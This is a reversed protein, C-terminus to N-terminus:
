RTILLFGVAASLLAVAVAVVPTWDFGAQGAHPAADTPRFAPAEATRPTPTARSAAVTDAEPDVPLLGHLASGAAAPRKARTVDSGSGSARQGLGSGSLGAGPPLTGLDVIPDSGLPRHSASGPRPVTGSRPGTPLPAPAVVLDRFEPLSKLPFFQGGKSRGVLISSADGLLGDRLAQRIAETDGKVTYSQGAEDRYVMYWLDAAPHTPHGAPPAITRSQGTLDEVFERCSAPRRDPEASMARRIAWDVRDSLAPNLDRPAPFENRVKKLWCDLPSSDAFPVCGTVAAYLTAGLSYIDGRADVGKANRFQEPAMYHPTGLGRGTKTLNLEGEVDKVLGMDTLKAVGDRTVLVNDPKVDRHVLGQKHARQLGDCVQRILRIAEAEPVAGDREIRQGLSEGDVYEMVLFPHPGSGCYELGKVLNPHDLVKAALFEREFRQLLIPNRATAPAIVKVAVVDGTFRHRAKYVTGMGGDAIKALIDYNGLQRFEPPATTEPPM